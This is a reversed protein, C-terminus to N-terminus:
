SQIDLRQPSQIDSDVSYAPKIDNAHANISSTIVFACLLLLAYKILVNM